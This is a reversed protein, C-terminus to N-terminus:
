HSISLLAMTAIGNNMMHFLIAPIISREKNEQVLQNLILGLLLRPLFANFDLHVAAFLTATLFSAIPYRAYKSFTLFLFGRFFVEEVMPAIIVASVFFIVISYADNGFFPLLNQSEGYGPINIQFTNIISILVISFLIYIGYWKFVSLFTKKWSTSIISFSKLIPKKKCQLIIWLPILFLFSQICFLMLVRLSTPIPLITIFRQVIDSQWELLLLVSGLAFFVILVDQLSFPSHHIFDLKQQKKKHHEIM